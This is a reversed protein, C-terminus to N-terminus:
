IKAYVLVEDEKILDYFKETMGDTMVIDIKVELAEEFDMFLGNLEFLGRVGGGVVRLDLDSEETADGRAYSGFLFVKEIDYMPAIKLVAKKIQNKTLM